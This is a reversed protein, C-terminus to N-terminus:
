EDFFSRKVAARTIEKLEDPDLTVNLASAAAKAEQKALLLRQIEESVIQSLSATTSASL